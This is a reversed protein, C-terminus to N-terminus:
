PVLEIVLFRCAPRTSPVQRLLWRDFLALRDIWADGLQVFNCARSLLHFPHARMDPFTHRIIALDALSLSRETPTDVRRPLMRKIGRTERLKRLAEPLLLVPECFVARGGSRLLRRLNPMAQGLEVHHLVQNGVVFDYTAHTDDLQEVPVVRFDARQGVGNAAARRTAVSVNQESVDIGTVRAGQLALYVSLAGTGSGVELM